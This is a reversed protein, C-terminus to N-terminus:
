GGTYETAVGAIATAFATATETDTFAAACTAPLDGAYLQECTLAAFDTLCERAGERATNPDTASEGPAYLEDAKCSETQSSVSTTCREVPEVGIADVAAQYGDGLTEAICGTLQECFTDTFRECLEDNTEETSEQAADYVGNADTGQSACEAPPTGSEQETYSGTYDDCSADGEVADTCASLAESSAPDLGGSEAEECSSDVAHTAALCEEYLAAADAGREAAACDAADQCVAECYSTQPDSELPNKGSCAALLALAIVMPSMRM